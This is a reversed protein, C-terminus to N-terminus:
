GQPVGKIFELTQRLETEVETVDGVDGWDVDTKSSARCRWDEIETLLVRIGIMHETYADQATRQEM